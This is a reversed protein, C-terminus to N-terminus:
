GLLALEYDRLDTLQNLSEVEEGNKRLRVNIMSVADVSFPFNEPKCKVSRCYTEKVMEYLRQRYDTSFSWKEQNPKEGAEQLAERVEMTAFFLESGSIDRILM